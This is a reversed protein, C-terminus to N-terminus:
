QKMLGLPNVLRGNKYVTFHLHPGTSLGTSGVTGIMTSTSAKRGRSINLTHLHGYLTVYGSHHQIKVYNGFTNDWGAAIVTGAMAAYVPTGVGGRAVMDVGTHYSRKGSRFPDDRWGFYSSFYKFQNRLPAVFLDGNIEQRAVFDMQADPVFLVAGARLPESVGLANASACKEASVEYKLAIQGVTDGDAKVTHLIGPMSPIKLYQGVQLLRSQKINNVNILTDQTLGYRESLAGIMDGKQIRYVTYTLPPIAEAGASADDEGYQAEDAQLAPGADFGDAEDKGQMCGVAALVCIGAAVGRIGGRRAQNM